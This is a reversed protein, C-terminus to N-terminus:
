INSEPESSEDTLLSFTPVAVSFSPAVPSFEVEEPIGPISLVPLDTYVYEEEVDMTETDTFEDAEPAWALADEDPLITQPTRDVIPTEGSGRPAPVNMWLVVFLAAAAAFIVGVVWRGNRSTQRRGLVQSSLDGPYRAAEYEGRAAQLHKRLEKM